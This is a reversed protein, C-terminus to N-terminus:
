GKDPKHGKEAKGPKGPKGPKDAKVKEPKEVKDPKLADDSEDVPKPEALEAACFPEVNAPGGAATELSRWAPNVETGNKTSHAYGGAQYAECLGHISPNPGTRSEDAPQNGHEVTPAPALTPEETADDSANETAEDTPKAANTSHPAVVPEDASLVGLDPAAIALSGGMILAIAALPAAVAKSRFNRM